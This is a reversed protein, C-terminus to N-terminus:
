TPLKEIKFYFHVDIGLDKTDYFFVDKQTDSVQMILPSALQALGSIHVPMFTAVMENDPIGPFPLFIQFRGLVDRDTTAGSGNLLVGADSVYGWAILTQDVYKKTAAHDDLTPETLLRVANKFIWDGVASM